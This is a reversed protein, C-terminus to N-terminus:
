VIALTTLIHGPTWSLRLKVVGVRHYKPVENEELPITGDLFLLLLGFQPNVPLCWLGDSHTDM